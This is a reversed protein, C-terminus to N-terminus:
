ARTRCLAVTETGRSDVHLWVYSYGQSACQHLVCPLYTLHKSSTSFKLCMYTIFRWHVAAYLITWARDATVTCAIGTIGGASKQTKNQFTDSIIWIYRIVDTITIRLLKYLSQMNYWSFYNWQTDPLQTCWFQSIYLQFKLIKISSM